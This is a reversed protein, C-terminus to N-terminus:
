AQLQHESLLALREPPFIQDFYDVHKHFSQSSKIREVWFQIEESHGLLSWSECIIDLLNIVEKLKNQHTGWELATQFNYYEAKINELLLEINTNFLERYWSNALESFFILHQERLVTEEGLKSLRERAFLVITLLMCFRFEGSQDYKHNLLSKDYFSTIQDETPQDLNIQRFFSRVSNLTFGGTFVSLRAFLKQEEESLFQFSWEIANFLTKQRDSTTRLVHAHLMSSNSINDLLQQLSMMRTQTAFLEIALPLGDLQRCIQTIEKINSQDISFNPDVAQARLNFLQLAEFEALQDIKMTQLQSDDPITLPSIPYLWEGPVHLAERSTILIKLNPSSTLLEMVMETGHDILHEFDDLILLFPQHSFLQRIDNLHDANNTFDKGIEKVIAPFILSADDLNALPILYTGGEFKTTFQHAIELSLRTKGIGPPGIITVLRITENKLYKQLNEMDASHGVFPTTAAPLNTISRNQQSHWPFEQPHDSISKQWDGRSFLLFNKMENQPIQFIEAFRECTQASPRREEAEFKRILAASCGVQRALDVQTLDLNKRRHKLWLGFSNPDKM